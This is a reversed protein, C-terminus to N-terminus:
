IKIDIANILSFLKTWQDRMGKSPASWLARLPHLWIPLIDRANRFSQKLFQM